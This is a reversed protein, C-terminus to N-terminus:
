FDVNLRLAVSRLDMAYLDREKPDSMQQWRIANRTFGDGKKSYPALIDYWFISLAVRNFLQSKLKNTNDILTFTAGANLKIIPKKDIDVFNLSDFVEPYDKKVDSICNSRGPLGWFIRTNLNLSMWLNPKYNIHFKTINTPINLFNKGDQTYTNNMDEIEADKFSDPLNPFYLENDKSYPITDIGYYPVISKFVNKASEPLDKKRVIRQFVHNIGASLKKSTIKSELCLNIFEYGGINTRRFVDQNWLLLNEIIIYSLSGQLLFVAKRLPVYNSTILEISRSKEPKLSNIIPVITSDWPLLVESDGDPKIHPSEFHLKNNSNGNQDIFYYNIEYIDVNGYNSSQQYILKIAHSRHPTFILSIKPSILRPFEPKYMPTDFNTKSRFLKDIRIGAHLGIRDEIVNTFSEIFWSCNWYNVNNVVLAKERGRFENIGAMNKGIVDCRVNIGSTVKMLKFRNLAYIFGLGIRKEGFAQDVTDELQNYGTIDEIKVYESAACFDAQIICTDNKDIPINYEMGSSLNDIQYVRRNFGNGITNRWFSALSDTSDIIVNKGNKDPIYIPFEALEGNDYEGMWPDYVFWGSSQQIQRTYRTYWSFNKYEVNLAARYNGPVEGASGTVPYGGAPVLYHVSDDSDGPYPSSPFGWLYGRERGIGDSKRCGFSGAIFLTDQLIFQKYFQKDFHYSHNYSDYNKGLWGHTFVDEMANLSTKKTVINVVGAIAGSGYRLGSPGHVIEIYEIDGFLGLDVETLAGDKAMMNQKIGNILFIFKDMIESAVGRMGWSTGVWKQIMYVFGPVYIEIVETLTRAGTCQIDNASILTKYMPEKIPAWSLYSGSGHKINLGYIISNENNFKLSATISSDNEAYAVLHFLLITMCPILLFQITKKIPMYENKM